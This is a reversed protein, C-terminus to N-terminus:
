IMDKDKYKYKKNFETPVIKQTVTQVLKVTCLLHMVHCSFHKNNSRQCDKYLNLPHVKPQLMNCWFLKLIITIKYKYCCNNFNNIDLLRPSALYTKGIAGLNIKNHNVIWSHESDRHKRKRHMYISLKAVGLIPM